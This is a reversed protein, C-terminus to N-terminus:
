TGTFQCSHFNWKLGDKGRGCLHMHLSFLVYLIVEPSPKDMFDFTLVDTIGLAMLQLVVSSLNCRIFM